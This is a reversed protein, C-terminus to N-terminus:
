VKDSFRILRYNKIDTSRDTQRQWEARLLALINNSVFPLDSLMLGSVIDFNMNLKFQLVQCSM